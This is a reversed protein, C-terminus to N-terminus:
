HGCSADSAEVVLRLHCYVYRFMGQASGTLALKIKSKLEPNYQRLRPHTELNAEVYLHVDNWLEQPRLTETATNPM